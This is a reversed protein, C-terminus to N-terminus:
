IVSLTQGCVSLSVPLTHTILSVVSLRSFETLREVASTRGRDTPLVVGHAESAPGHVHWLPDGVLQGDHHVHVAAQM